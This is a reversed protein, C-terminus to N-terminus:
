HAPPQWVKGCLGRYVFPGSPQTPRIGMPEVSVALEKADKFVTEASEALEVTVFRKGHTDPVAVVAKAEGSQTILWLYLTQGQPVVYPTQLKVDVRTAHRLSSIVVGAQGQTTALVGVYSEPLQSGDPTRHTLNSLLSPLALGVMLG